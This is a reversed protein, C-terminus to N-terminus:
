RLSQGGKVLQRRFDVRTVHRHCVRDCCRVHQDPDITVWLRRPVTPDPERTLWRGLVYECLSDFSYSMDKHDNPFDAGIKGRVDVVNCPLWSVVQCWVLSGGDCTAM